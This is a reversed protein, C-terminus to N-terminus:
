VKFICFYMHKTENDKEKLCMLYLREVDEVIQVANALWSNDMTENCNYHCHKCTKCFNELYNDCGQDNPKWNSCKCGDFQFVDFYYYNMCVQCRLYPLCRKLQQELTSYKAVVQSKLEELNNLM